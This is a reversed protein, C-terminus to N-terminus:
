DQAFMTLLRDRRFFNVRIAWGFKWNGRNRVCRCNKERRRGTLSLEKKELVQLVRFCLERIIQVQSNFSNFAGPILVEPFSRRTFREMSTRNSAIPYDM